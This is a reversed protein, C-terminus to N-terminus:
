RWRCCASRTGRLAGAPAPSRTLPTCLAAPAAGGRAKFFRLYTNDHLSHYRVDHDSRHAGSATLVCLPSHTFAVASVGYTKCGLTKLLTGNAVDYLRLTDDDAARVVAVRATLRRAVLSM